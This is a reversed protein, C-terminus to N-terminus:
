PHVDERIAEAVGKCYDAVGEYIDISDGQDWKNVDDAENSIALTLRNIAEDVDNM